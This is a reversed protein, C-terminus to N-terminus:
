RPSTNGATGQLLRDFPRLETYERNKATFENMQVMVGSRFWVGNIAGRYVIAPLAGPGGAKGRVVQKSWGKAPGEYLYIWYRRDNSLMLDDGGDGDLDVFRLGQDAGAEDVLCGKEPLAFGAREWRRAAPRWFFVANQAENNVLLDSCGDGNLDRFRVGRDVGNVATYLKRGDVEAPLRPAPVWGNEAIYLKRGDVEAPLRPAPVWGNEAFYYVGTREPTAVALGAQGTRSATFFRVGAPRSRAAQEDSVLPVPFDTTKWTRTQPRWVRTQRRKPNAIVVDLYGDGNVDLLRVGNDAGTASRLPEGDLLNKTLRDCVERCNLFKVRKGYIRDAYDVLEAVQEAKIYGIPHFCLTYLGQKRVVVDLAQKWDEVTRPSNAKYAHVGHSDAPVVVPFEWLLRDIVYPYPYDAIHNTFHRTQPIGTIFKAFRERGDPQVTLGRPVSEDASTFYQFVSSDAVLFKGDRTRRPLVETYIRPSNTNQADCGPIRCAVVRNNPIESLNEVCDVVDRVAPRLSEEGPVAATRTRLLPVPHSVTHVDISMGQKLFRQLCPNAPHAQCTFITVPARGDIKQLRAAVPALFREYDEPTQAAPHRPTRGMDDISLIVVAEVGPEGVWMPTTLKPFHLHPYYPDREDLYVFRSGVPEAAVAGGAVLCPALWPLLLRALTPLRM